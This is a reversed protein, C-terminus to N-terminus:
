LQIVPENQRLKEQLRNMVKEGLDEDQREQLALVLAAIEKAEGTVTIQIKNVGKRYPSHSPGNMEQQNKCYFKIYNCHRKPM